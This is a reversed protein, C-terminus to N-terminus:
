RELERRLSSLSVPLCDSFFGSVSQKVYADNSFAASSFNSTKFLVSDGLSVTMSDSSGGLQKKRMEGKRKTYLKLKKLSAIFKKYRQLTLPFSKKVSDWTARNCIYVQVSDPSVYISYSFPEITRGDSHSYILCDFSGQVKLIDNLAVVPDVTEVAQELSANPTQGWVMQPVVFSGLLFLYYIFKM